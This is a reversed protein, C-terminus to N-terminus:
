GGHLRLVCPFKINLQPRMVLAYHQDVWLTVLSVILWVGFSSSSSEIVVIFKGDFIASEYRCHRKKM